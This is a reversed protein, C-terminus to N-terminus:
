WDCVSLYIASCEQKTGKTVVKHNLCSLSCVSFTHITDYITRCNARTDYVHALHLREKYYPYKGKQVQLYYTPHNSLIYCLTQNNGKYVHLTVDADTFQTMLNRDEGHM